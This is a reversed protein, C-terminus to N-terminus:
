RALNKSWGLQCRVRVVSLSTRYECVLLLISQLHLQLQLHLQSRLQPKPHLWSPQQRVNQGLPSVVDNWHMCIFKILCNSVLRLSICWSCVTRHRIPYSPIPDSRIPSPHTLIHYVFRFTLLFYFSWNASTSSILASTLKLNQLNLCIIVIPQNSIKKFVTKYM